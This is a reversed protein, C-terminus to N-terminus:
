KARESLRVLTEKALEKEPETGSEVIGILTPLAEVADLTGLGRIAELRVDPSESKLLGLLQTLASERTPRKEAEALLAGAARLSHLERIRATVHTTLNSSNLAGVVQVLRAAMEPDTSRLVENAVREKQHVSEDRVQLRELLCYFVTSPHVQSKDPHVSVHTVLDTFDEGYTLWNYLLPPGIIVHGAAALPAALPYLRQFRITTSEASTSASAGDILGQVVSTATPTPSLHLQEKTANTLVSDGYLVKVVANWHRSLPLEFQSLRLATLRMFLERKAPDVLAERLAKA